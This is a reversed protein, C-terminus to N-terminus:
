CKLVKKNKTSKQMISIKKIITSKPIKTIKNKLNNFKKENKASKPYKQLHKTRKIIMM